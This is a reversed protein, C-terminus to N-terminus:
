GVISRKRYLSRQSQVKCTITHNKRKRTRSRISGWFHRIIYIQLFRWSTQIKKRQGFEEDSHVRVLRKGDPRKWRSIQLLLQHCSPISLWAISLTFRMPWVLGTWTYWIIDSFVTSDFTRSIWSLFFFSMWSTISLSSQQSDSVSWVEEIWFANEPTLLVSFGRWIRSARTFSRISSKPILCCSAVWLAAKYSGTESM